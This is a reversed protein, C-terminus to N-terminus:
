ISILIGEGSPNIYILLLGKLSLLSIMECDAETGYKSNRLVM